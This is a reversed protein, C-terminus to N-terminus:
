PVPLTWYARPDKPSKGVWRVVGADRLANLRAITVPRSRGIARAVEITSLREASRLAGVIERTEAPLRADLERDVPEGSLEVHVSGSTQRYLPEHLGALRMEDYIRKIVSRAHQRARAADLVVLTLGTLIWKCAEASM